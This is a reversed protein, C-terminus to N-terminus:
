ANGMMVWRVAFSAVIVGFILLAGLWPNEGKDNIKPVNLPVETRGIKVVQYTPYTRKKLNSYRTKMEKDTSKLRRSNRGSGNFCYRYDWRDCREDRLRITTEQIDRFGNPKEYEKDNQHILSVSLINQYELSL